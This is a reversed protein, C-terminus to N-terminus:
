PSLIARAARAYAGQPYRGLYQRALDRARETRGLRLTATMQRGMAEARFADDPADTLYTDYWASAQALNG